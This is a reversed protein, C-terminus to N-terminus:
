RTYLAGFLELLLWGHSEGGMGAASQEGTLRFKGPLWVIGGFPLISATEPGTVNGL